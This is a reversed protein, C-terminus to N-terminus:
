ILKKKNKPCIYPNNNNSFEIECDIHIDNPLIISLDDFPFSPTNIHTVIENNTPSMFFFKVIITFFITAIFMYKLKKWFPKTKKAKSIKETIQAIGRIIERTQPNEM